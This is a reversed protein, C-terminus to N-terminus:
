KADVLREQQEHLTGKKLKINFKSLLQRFSSQVANGAFAPSLCLGIGCCDSTWDAVRLERPPVEVTCSGLWGIGADWRRGWSNCDGDLGPIPRVWLYTGARKWTVYSIWSGCHLRPAMGSVDSHWDINVLRDAQAANVHPLLQQHNMVAVLPIRQSKAIGAVSTVASVMRDPNTWYDIDISLYTSM